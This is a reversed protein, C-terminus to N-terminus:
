QYFIEALKEKTGIIKKGDLFVVSGMEILMETVPNKISTSSLDIKAPGFEPKKQLLVLGYNCDRILSNSVMVMSLDKSAIGINSNSITVNEVTLMSEEGGSIGKDNAKNVVVDSINIQSGSFDIADNGINNFRTSLVDGTCFDSDFADAFIYEFESDRVTFNCRITNLADECQNRYFRTNSIAVDSEYFSVAGTLTWGQYNLTNLNEFIVHEVTSQQDAQLVTFGKSTFDSSTIRVPNTKNGKLEVPSYSIIFAGDVMDLNTGAEFVLRYGKPIIVPHDLQINGKKVKLIKENWSSLLDPDPFINQAMLNQLPTNSGDPEPWPMIECTITAQDTGTMFFLFVAPDAVWFEYGARNNIRFGELEPEPHLFERIKRNTKGTGLLLVPDTFYNVVRILVSDGAAKMKYAQVLNQAYTGKMGTTYEFDTKSINKWKQDKEKREQIRQKFGPLDKRVEAANVTLDDFDFKFVPFEMQVLSDYYLASPTFNKNMEELFSESSYAELYKIYLDVFDFDNFLERRMLSQDWFSKIGDGKIDGIITRLVDESKDRDTYSDFMIPELKCLVPNYYFRYNHWIYSHQALFVDCMAFYRALVDINFIESATKTRLKYQLLLNQAILFQNFAATDELLKSTTFPKIAAADFSPLWTDTMGAKRRRVQDWYANEFFRIIPGERKSQSEVLNKTFHEEWAYLGLNKNNLYVPVFGYRTTLLDQDMCVQHLFWEDVGHRAVPTQLSFTRLRKWTNGRKLKLRFSWKDGHLHDLWDGKLRMRTKMMKDDGFVFGKVWDDDGSQLIGAQFAKERTDMLRIFDSTDTEVYIAQENFVPYTKNPKIIISLDDYYVTDNSNNWVYFKILDDHYFPPVFFELELKEWEGERETPDNGILYLLQPTTSSAILPAKVDGPGKRWISVKVYDEPQIGPISVSLAFKNETTTRFSHEGTRSVLDTRNKADKIIITSDNEAFFSKGDETLTEASFFVDMDIDAKHKRLCSTASLVVIVLVTVLIVSNEPFNKKM